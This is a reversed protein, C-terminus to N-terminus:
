EHIIGDTYTNRGAGPLTARRCGNRQWGGAGRMIAETNDVM